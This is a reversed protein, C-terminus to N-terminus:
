RRPVVSGRIAICPDHRGKLNCLTAENSTSNYRTTSINITDTLPTKVIIDDGNSIGGL